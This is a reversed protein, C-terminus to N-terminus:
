KFTNQLEYILACALIVPDICNKYMDSYKVLLPISKAVATSKNPHNTFIWTAFNRGLSNLVSQVNLSYKTLIIEYTKATDIPSLILKYLDEDLFTESSNVVGIKKIYQLDMTMSRLDPFRKNVINLIDDNSISIEEKTAITKLRAAYKNM